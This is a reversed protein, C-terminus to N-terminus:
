DMPTQHFAQTYLLAKNWLHQEMPKTNQNATIYIGLYRTGKSVKPVPIPHQANKNPILIYDTPLQPQILCLIGHKDPEWQYVIRCCKKPNLAGGTVKVLQAWWELQIKARNQLDKLTKNPNSTAHIVVDNIFAKLSRILELNCTPNNILRPAIKTHYTDILTDSLVIYCLAAIAAGQGAVHWPHQEFTNFNNSVGFQHRVHYHMAQHTRAHLKLYANTAGHHHCALNHCAEVM